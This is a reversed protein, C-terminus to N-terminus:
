FHHIKCQFHQIRVQNIPSDIVLSLLEFRNPQIFDSMIKLMLDMIKLMLDMTKLMLDMTKLMLDMTKLLFDMTKLLFDMTKLM